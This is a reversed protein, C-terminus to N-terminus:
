SRAAIAVFPSLTNSGDRRDIAAGWWPAGGCRLVFRFTTIDQDFYLHISTDARVGNTRRVTLYQSLDALILDGVDGVVNAAETTIIPRGLLSAYPAASLGGPPMYIPVPQTGGPMILRMLQPEVDANAIWVARARSGPALRSWMSVINGFTVTDAVQGSDAAVTILAPSNLIGLPQGVGTGQIIALNVKFGIKEPAKRRLYGDLGPADELLEDTVPVLATLKNLRLSGQDILPRSPTKVGGEGTWYAQIGGTTQWPTTEDIPYVFTNSSSIM